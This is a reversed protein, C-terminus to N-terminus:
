SLTSLITAASIRGTALYHLVAQRQLDDLRAVYSALHLPSTNASILAAVATIQADLAYGAADQGPGPGKSTVAM